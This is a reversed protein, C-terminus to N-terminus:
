PRNRPSARDLYDADVLADMAVKLALWQDPEGGEIGKPMIGYDLPNFTALPGLFGGRKCYVRDNATSAPDFFIDAPWAEPPPDTIADVKHVINHWYTELDPAGPFMCAMGIIAIDQDTCLQPSAHLTM